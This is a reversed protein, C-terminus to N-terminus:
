HDGEEDEEMEREEGRGSARPDQVGLTLSAGELRLVAVLHHMLHDLRHGTVPQPGDANSVPVKRGLCSLRVPVNLIVDQVVEGADDHDADLVRDSRLYAWRFVSGTILVHRQKHEHRSLQNIM